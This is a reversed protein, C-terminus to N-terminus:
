FDDLDVEVSDTIDAELSKAGTALDASPSPSAMTSPAQSALPTGARSPDQSNSNLNTRPITKLRASADAKGNKRERAAALEARRIAEANIKRNKISLAELTSQGEQRQREDPYRENFDAIQFELSRVEEMDKRKLALARAQNLRSREMTIQSTTKAGNAKRIQEKRKLIGSVDTETLVTHILSQMKEYKKKISQTTPYTQSAAQIETALRALEGEEMPANSLLDMRFFKRHKGHQLEFTRDVATGEVLYPKVPEPSLGMVQCIRYVTRGKDDHGISYRVWAGTIFEAFWPALFHKKVMERTVRGRNMDRITAPGNQIQPEPLKERKNPPPSAADDSEKEEEGEESEDTDVEMDSENHRPSRDGRKRDDKAQRRAKLEDLKRTKEKTAGPPLRARKSDPEGGRSERMRRLALKDQLKQREEARGALTQEREMETMELLRQRDSENIYKGELPYPDEVEESEVEEGDEFDSVDNAKRKRNHKSTKKHRRGEKSTHEVLGLLETEFPDADSSM